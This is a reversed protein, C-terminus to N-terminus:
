QLVIAGNVAMSVFLYFRSTLPYLFFLAFKFTYVCLDYSTCVLRYVQLSFFPLPHYTLPPRITLCSTYVLLCLLCFRCRGSLLFMLLVNCVWFLFYFLFFIEYGSSILYLAVLSFLSKFACLTQHPRSSPGCAALCLRILPPPMM